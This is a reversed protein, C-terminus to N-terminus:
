PTLGEMARVLLDPAGFNGSKLLLGLDRGDTALCWPVGRDAEGAVIVQAVDLSQVVAGSTEGGAVVVRVAGLEVATRAVQGLTEELLDATRPGWAAVAAEREDSGASSYVLLPGRAWNDELWGRVDGRLEEVDPISAPDLRYSPFVKAATAIQELTATSCSGALIIGAGTPLVLTEGDGQPSSPRAMDLVSGLAGALGAGGTLLRIADAGQAVNRLDGDTVADVVIHRTESLRLQELQSRVGEPGSRVATLPLLGVAGTTQRALVRTILSDTMPTLPHHRMSSEALLHAGVFLHGLYSTRGHEPSAPCVLTTTEGLEDLLADAVPGINGDDTSDFTSCYKFYYRETGHTLLWRLSALSEEVADEAPITRTKLAIVVADTDPAPSQETPLGFQLTVSLGARRFAAAVDTGGTFDDAICGWRIV